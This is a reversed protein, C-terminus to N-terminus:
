EVNEVKYDVWNINCKIEYYDKYEQLHYSSVYPNSWSYEEIAFKYLDLTANKDSLIAENENIINQNILEVEKNKAYGKALTVNTQLALLAFIIWLYKTTWEIPNEAYLKCIIIMLMALGFLMNRYGLTPSIIMMAQSGVFLIFAIVSINLWSDKQKVNLYVFLIAMTVILLSINILRFMDMTVSIKLFRNYNIYFLIINLIAIAIMSIKWKKNEDKIAYLIALASILIYYVNMKELMTYNMLFFKTNYKLSEVGSIVESDIELRNFQSPALLVTAASIITIALLIWLKKNEKLIPKINKISDIKSILTLVTVGITMMACQEVSAASLIGFIISPIWYKKNDLNLLCYWYICLM